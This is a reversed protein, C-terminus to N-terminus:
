EKSRSQRERVRLATTTKLAHMALASIKACEAELSALNNQENALNADALAMRAEDFLASIRDLELKIGPRKVPEPEPPADLEQSLPLEREPPLSLAANPRTM